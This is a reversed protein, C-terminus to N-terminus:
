NWFKRRSSHELMTISGMMWPSLCRLAYGAAVIVEKRASVTHVEGDYEFEVGTATIDDGEKRTVLKYAYAETLVTLNPRELAPM